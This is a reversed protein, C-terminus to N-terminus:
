YNICVIEKRYKCLKFENVLIVQINFEVVHFSVFYIKSHTKLKVVGIRVIYSVRKWLIIFEDPHNEIKLSLLCYHLAAIIQGAYYYDYWM